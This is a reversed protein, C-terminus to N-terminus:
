RFSKESICKVSGCGPLSDSWLQVFSFLPIFSVWKKKKKEKINKTTNPQYQVFDPQTHRYPHYPFTQGRQMQLCFSSPTSLFSLVHGALVRHFCFLRVGKEAESSFRALFYHQPGKQAYLPHVGPM